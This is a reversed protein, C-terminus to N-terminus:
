SYPNQRHQYPAKAQDQARGRFGRVVKTRLRPVEHMDGEGSQPSITPRAVKSLFVCIFKDSKSGFATGLGSQRLSDGSPRGPAGSLKRSLGLSSGPFSELSTGPSGGLSSGPSSGPSNGPSAGPSSGPSSGLFWKTAERSLKRFLKKYLESVAEQYAEQIIKLPIGIQPRASPDHLRHFFAIAIADLM